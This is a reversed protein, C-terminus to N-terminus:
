RAPAVRFLVRKTGLGPHVAGLSVLLLCPCISTRKLEPLFCGTWASSPLQHHCEDGAVSLDRATLLGAYGLPIV